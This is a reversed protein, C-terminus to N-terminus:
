LIRDTKSHVYFSKADEVCKNCIYCWDKYSIIIRNEWEGCLQCHNDFSTNFILQPSSNLQEDIDLCHEKCLYIGAYELEKNCVFCKETMYNENISQFINIVM